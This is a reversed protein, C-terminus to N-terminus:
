GTFRPQSLKKACRQFSLRLTKPKTGSGSQFTVTVVLRHVGIKLKKPDVRMSITKANSKNNVRKVVKGDLVFRATAIKAGAVRANFAKAVCGTPGALKAAGPTVREPLVLQEPQTLQTDAADNATPCTGFEDCASVTGVNHVAEDGVATQVSCTYTWTDGPNLFLPTADGGKSQLSVPDGGAAACKEDAIKVTSEAFREDGPNTVVLSYAIKDGAQGTAPGSKDIAIAPHYVPVLADDENSKVPQGGKVSTGEVHAVNVIQHSANEEGHVVTVLCKWTWTEGPDLNGDNNADGTPGSLTECTHNTNKIADILQVNAVSDNGSGTAKITFTIKDGDYAHDQDADKTLNISVTGVETTVDDCVNTFTGAAGGLSDHADVCAQNTYSPVDSSTLVHTCTFTKSDGAQGKANLSFDNTAPSFNTCGAVNSGKVVDRFNTVSLSNDGENQVKITYTLTNGVVATTKDVEKTLSIAPHV